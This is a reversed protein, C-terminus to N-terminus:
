VRSRYLAFRVADRAGTVRLRWRRARVPASLLLIRSAGIRGARTVEAWDGARYAEVVFSEVRISQRRDGAESALTRVLTYWSDWDYDEVKGPPIRGQGRGGRWSSSAM